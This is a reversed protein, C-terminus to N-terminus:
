LTSTAPETLATSRRLKGLIRSGSVGVLKRLYSGLLLSTCWVQRPVNMFRCSVDRRYEGWLMM